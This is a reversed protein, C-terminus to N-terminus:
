RPSFFYESSSLAVVHLTYQGNEVENSPVIIKEITSFHEQRLDPYNNGYYVKGSPSVLYINLDSAIPYSYDEKAQDLYAVTIKIDQKNSELDTDIDFHTFLNQFEISSNGIMLHFNSDDFEMVNELTVMGHGQICDPENTKTSRTENFLKQASNVLSARILNNNTKIKHNNFFGDEFYQEVLLAAGAVWYSNM